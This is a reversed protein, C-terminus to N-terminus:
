TQNRIKLPRINPNNVTSFSHLFQQFHSSWKLILIIQKELGVPLYESRLPWYIVIRIDSQNNWHYREATHQFCKARSCTEPHKWEELPSEDDDPESWDCDGHWVSRQPIRWWWWGQSSRGRNDPHSVGVNCASWRPLYEIIIPWYLVMSM